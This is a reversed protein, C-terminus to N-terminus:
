EHSSRIAHLKMNNRNKFVKPCYECKISKVSSKRVNEQNSSSLHPVIPTAIATSNADPLLRNLEIDSDTSSLFPNQILETTNLDEERFEFTDTDSNKDPSLFPNLVSTHKVQSLQSFTDHASKFIIGGAKTKVDGDSEDVSEENSSHEDGGFTPDGKSDDDSSIDDKTSSKFRLSQLLRFNHFSVAKESECIDGGDRICKICVSGKHSLTFLETMAATLGVKLKSMYHFICIISFAFEPDCNFEESIYYKVDQNFFKKEIAIIELKSVIDPIDQNLLFKVIEEGEKRSINLEKLTQFEVEIHCRYDHVRLVKKLTKKVSYSPTFRVPIRGLKVPTNEVCQIFCKQPTVINLCSSDIM